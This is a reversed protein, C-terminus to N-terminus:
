RGCGNPGRGTGGARPRSHPSNLVAEFDDAPLAEPTYTGGRVTLNRHFARLHNGSAAELAALVAKHKPFDLQAQRLDAIDHDELRVGALCAAAASTRGEALWKAFTANLGKSVFRRKGAPTPLKIGETKLIAALAERHRLESQPINKLPMVEPFKRGLAVYLDHALIEEEYLRILTDPGAAAATAAAMAFLGITSLILSKM